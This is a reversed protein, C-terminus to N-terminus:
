NYRSPESFLDIPSGSGSRETICLMVKLLFHFGTPPFGRCALPFVSSVWDAHPKRGSMPPLAGQVVKMRRLRFVM